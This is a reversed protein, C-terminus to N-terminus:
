VPQIIPPTATAAKIRPTKIHVPRVLVDFVAFVSGFRGCAVAGAPGAVGGGDVVPEAVGEVGAGRYFGSQAGGTCPDVNAIWQTTRRPATWM